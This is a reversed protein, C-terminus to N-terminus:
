EDVHLPEKSKSGEDRSQGAKGDDRIVVLGWSAGYAESMFM